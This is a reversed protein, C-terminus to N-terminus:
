EQEIEGGGKKLIRLLEFRILTKLLVEQLLDLEMAM